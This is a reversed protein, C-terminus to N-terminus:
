INPLTMTRGQIRLKFTMVVFSVFDCLSPLLHADDSRDNKLALEQAVKWKGSYGKINLGSAALEEDDKM